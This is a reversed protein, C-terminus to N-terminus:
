KNKGAAEYTAWDFAALREEESMQGARAAEIADAEARERLSPGTGRPLLKMHTPPFIVARAAGLVLHAYTSGFDRSDQSAPGNDGELWV